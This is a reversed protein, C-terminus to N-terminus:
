CWVVRVSFSSMYTFHSDFHWFNERPGFKQSKTIYSGHYCKQELLTKESPNAVSKCVICEQFAWEIILLTQLRLSMIDRAQPSPDGM